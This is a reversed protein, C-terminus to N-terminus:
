DGVMEEEKRVLPPEVHEVWCAHDVDSVQIGRKKRQRRQKVTGRDRGGWGKIEERETGRETRGGAARRRLTFGACLTTTNSQEGRGQTYDNYEWSKM